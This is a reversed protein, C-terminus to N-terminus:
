NPIFACKGNICQDGPNCCDAATVCTENEKACGGPPPVCVLPGGDAAPRCFGNCCQDGSACSQGDAKCPDLVWFGRLNDAQLEQGDLFFAPHSPDTGPAPNLDIASVWLKGYEDKNDQSALTNGYSRHSTFVVWYYGGVAEPLVTPAFNLAPDQAPLYTVGGGSYGDLADLRHTKKAAVDVIFLDGTAYNDTEFPANSGSHFVISKSDPTFAPWGPFNQKDTAVDVLGSFARQAVAFDMVSLTHGNDKDEHIFALRKGDPSFSPTGAKQITNDWGTAVLLSGTKVDYLRSPAGLWTRYNTSSMSISGNPFIGGYTFSNDPQAQLVSANNKLDYSASGGPFATSAIMTSGDASATHCV